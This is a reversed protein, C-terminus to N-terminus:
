DIEKSLLSLINTIRENENKDIDLWSLAAKLTSFVEPQILSHQIDNHGILLTGYVVQHPLETLIASKRKANIEQHNELYQHLNVLDHNTLTIKAKRIDALIHYHDRWNNDMIEIKKCDFMDKYEFEGKFYEVILNLDSLIQYKFIMIQNAENYQSM